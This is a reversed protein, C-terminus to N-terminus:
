NENVFEGTDINVCDVGFKTDCANNIESVNRIIWAPNDTQGVDFADFFFDVTHKVALAATIASDAGMALFEATDHEVWINGANGGDNGYCNFWFVQQKATNDHRFIAIGECQLVPYAEQSLRTLDEKNLNITYVRRAIHHHLSTIDTVTGAAAVFLTGNHLDYRKIKHARERSDNRTSGTDAALHGKSYILLTM